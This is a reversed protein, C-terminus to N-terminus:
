IGCSLRNLARDVKNRNLREQVGKGIAAAMAALPIWRYFGFQLDVITRDIKQIPKGRPM